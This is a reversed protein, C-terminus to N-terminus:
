ATDGPPKRTQRGPRHIHPTKAIAEPPHDHRQAPNPPKRAATDPDGFSLHSSRIRCRVTARGGWCAARRKSAWCRPSPSSRSRSSVASASLSTYKWVAAAACAGQIFYLDVVHQVKLELQLPRGRVVQPGRIHILVRDAPQVNPAVTLARQTTRAGRRSTRWQAPCTDDARTDGPSDPAPLWTRWLLEQPLGRWCEAARHSDAMSRPGAAPAHRVGIRCSDDTGCLTSLDAAEYPRLAAQVLGPM